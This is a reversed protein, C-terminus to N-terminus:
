SSAEVAGECAGQAKPHGPTISRMPHIARIIMRLNRFRDSVDFVLWSAKEIAENCIEQSKLNDSVDYLPWPDIRVAENCMEQTKLDDPVLTLFSPRIYVLWKWPVYKKFLDIMKSVDKPGPM